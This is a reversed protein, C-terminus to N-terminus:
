SVGPNVANLNALFAEPGFDLHEPLDVKCRSVTARM